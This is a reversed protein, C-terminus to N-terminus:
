NAKIGGLIAGGLTNGFALTTDAFIEFADNQSTSRALPMVTMPTLDEIWMYRTNVVVLATTLGGSFGTIATGGWVLDDPLGSSIVMPIGDYTRVRFGAAIETSDIFRQQAQLAGNVKRIGAFSGFVMVDSRSGSGKVRDITEDLRALTLDDGAAATTQAVVQGSVNGILTLMGNIQKPNAASNGTFLANEHAFAFDESKAALETALVDGYSRGTAMLKRTVQGKTLLTKYPFSVQTYTGTEDTAGDTDNVWEGGNTGAARRNIYSADGQGPKRSLAGQAGLERLTLMQVVRNIQTQLLVSGAGSVNLARQVMERRNANGQTWIASM